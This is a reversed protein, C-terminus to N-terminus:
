LLVAWCWASPEVGLQATLTLHQEPSDEAPGSYRVLLTCRYILDSQSCEDRSRGCLM